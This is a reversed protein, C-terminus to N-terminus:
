DYAVDMYSRLLDIQVAMTLQPDVCVCKSAEGCHESRMYVMRAITDDLKHCAGEAQSRRNKELALYVQRAQGLSELFIAHEKAQQDVSMFRQCFQRSDNSCKHTCLQQVFGRHAVFLQTPLSRGRLDNYVKSAMTGAEFLTCDPREFCNLYLRNNLCIQRKNTLVSEPRREVQQSKEIPTLMSEGNLLNKNGDIILQQLATAFCTRLHLFNCSSTTTSSHFSAPTTQEAHITFSFFTPVFAVWFVLLRTLM